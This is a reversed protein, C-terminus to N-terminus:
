DRKPVLSSSNLKDALFSGVICVKKLQSKLRSNEKESPEASQGSTQTAQNTTEPSGSSPERRSVKLQLSMKENEAKNVRVSLKNVKEKLAMIETEKQKIKNKNEEKIDRITKEYNWKLVELDTVSKKQTDIVQRLDAIEQFLQNDVKRERQDDRPTQRKPASAARMSREDRLTKNLTNIVSDKQKSEEKMQDIITKYQVSPTIRKHRLEENENQYAILKASKAELESELEVIRANM